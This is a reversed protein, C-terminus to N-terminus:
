ALPVTKYGSAMLETQLEALSWFAFAVGHNRKVALIFADQDDTTTRYGVKAEFACFRGDPGCGIIDSVGPVGFRVFRRKGTPAYIAEHGGVEQKWVCGIKAPRKKGKPKAVDFGCLALYALAAHKLATENTKM